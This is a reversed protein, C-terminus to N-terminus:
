ASQIQIESLDGGKAVAYVRRQDLKGQFRFGHSGPRAAVWVNPAVKGTRNDVIMADDIDTEGFSYACYAIWDASTSEHHCRHISVGEFVGNKEPCDGNLYVDFRQTQRFRCDDITIDRKERKVDNDTLTIGDVCWEFSAGSVHVDGGRGIVLAALPYNQRKTPGCNIFRDNVSRVYGGNSIYLGHRRCDQFTNGISVASGNGGMALAIGKGRQDDEGVINRCVNGAVHANISGGKACNIAAGYTLGEFRCGILSFLDIQCGSETSLVPGRHQDLSGDGLFQCNEFRIEKAKTGSKVRFGKPRWPGDEQFRFVRDRIVTDGTIEIVNDIVEESM